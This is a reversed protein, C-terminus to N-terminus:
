PTEYAGIDCRERGRGPRPMGRQDRYTHIQAYLIEPIHCAGIPIANYAPNHSSLNLAITQTPGGNSALHPIGGEFVAAPDQIVRDGPQRFFGANAREILNYGKSQVTSHPADPAIRISTTFVITNSLTLSGWHDEDSYFSSEVLIGTKGRNHIITCFFLDIVGSSLFIGGSDSSSSLSINESITSNSISLTGASNVIGGASDEGRDPSRSLSTNGFITSNSIRMRGFGNWIGGAAYSSNGSVTSNSITVTGADSSIGGSTFHFSANSTNGSIISNSLTVKGAENWIGGTILGTNNSITSHSITLTGSGNGIVGIALSSNDSITSNSLTVTGQNSIGGQHNKAITVHDLHLSSTADVQIVYGESSAPSPSGNTFSLDSFSVADVGPLIHLGSTGLSKLALSQEGPGHLTVPKNITLESKLTITGRVQPAFSIPKGPLANALAWRLSGIGDEQTTTIINPDPPQSFGFQIASATVVVFVLAIVLSIFRMQRQRKASQSLFTFEKDSLLQQDVTQAEKLRSGRYLRDPKKGKREWEDKDRSIAQVLRSVKHEEKLWVSPPSWIHLLAEHSVELFQTGMVSTVTLLREQIFIAIVEMMRSNREHDSSEFEELSARRRTIISAETTEVDALMLRLFMSRTLERHRESPLCTLYVHDAHVTLAGQVGGIEELAQVTIRRGDRRQYLQDLTFQLLPLPNEIDTVQQLLLDILHYEFRLDVGPLAAPREIIERLAKQDMAAIGVQHNRILEALSPYAMPQGYFDARLILLVCINGGPMTSATILLDIFHKREQETVLHTFLKECQDVLVFVLTEPHTGLTRTLHVLSDPAQELRHLIHEQDLTPLHRALASSLAYVPNEPELLPEVYIWTESGALAGQQLAPLLGAQVTSTKGTGSAGVIALFRESKEGAQPTQLQKELTQIWEQILHERGFFDGADEQTFPRLGKYPNRPESPGKRPRQKTPPRGETLRVFFGKPYDAARLMTDAEDDTLNLCNTLKLLHSPKPITGNMWSSVTQRSVDVCNAIEEAKMGVHTSYRRLVESFSEQQSGVKV